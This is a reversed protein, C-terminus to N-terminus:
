QHKGQHLEQQPGPYVYHLSAHVQQPHHDMQLLAPQWLLLIKRNIVAKFEQRKFPMFMLLRIPGRTVGVVNKFIQSFVYKRIDPLFGYCINLRHGHQGHQFFPPAPRVPYTLSSGGLM